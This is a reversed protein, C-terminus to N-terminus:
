TVASLQNYFYCDAQIPCHDCLPRPKCVRRGHLILTDSLKTWRSPRVLQCLQEETVNPNSSRALGIRNSVRQVHRDVPLAPIGFAHGLVVNATKRGVGTLKVLKERNDPVRGDHHKVLASATAILSRAKSRFFGTSKISPELQAPTAKALTHANPYRKFLLPTAQNVRKDTCQASLITAILLQYPNSFHLETGANPHLRELKTLIRRRVLVPIHYKTLSDKKQRTAIRARNGPKQNM